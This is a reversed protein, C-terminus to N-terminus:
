LVHRLPTFARLLRRPPVPNPRRRADIGTSRCASSRWAHKKLWESMERETPLMLSERALGNAACTTGIRESRSAVRVITGTRDGDPDHHDASRYLATPHTTELATFTISGIKKPIAANSLTCQGVGNTTCSGTLGNSWSGSVTAGALPTAVMTSRSPSGVGQCQHSPARRSCGVQGAYRRDGTDRPSLEVV